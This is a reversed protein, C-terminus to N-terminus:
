PALEKKESNGTSTRNSKKARVRKPQVDIADMGKDLEAQSSQAAETQHRVAEAIFSVGYVQMYANLFEPSERFKHFLPWNHYSLEEFIEGTKGISIMLEAAASFDDSLVAIALRFDRYSASWDLSKLALQCAVEDGSFKAAIAANVTRIRLSIDTIGDQM